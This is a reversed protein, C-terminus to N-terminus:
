KLEFQIPLIVKCAVPNGNADYAPTFTANRLKELAVSNLAEYAGQLLRVDQVKGSSDILVSLVVRGDKGQARAVSPYDRESILNGIWKPKRAAQSVPIYIGTGETSGGFGSGSQQRDCPEPCAVEEPLSQKVESVNPLPPPVPARGKKPTTWSESRVGGRGGPNPIAPVLSSMSLDLEALIPASHRAMFFTKVTLGIGIHFIASLAIGLAPKNIRSVLGTM